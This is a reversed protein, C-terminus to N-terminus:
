DTNKAVKKHVIQYKQATEEIEQAKNYAHEISKYTAIKRYNVILVAIKENEYWEVAVRHVKSLDIRKSKVYMIRPMIKNFGM